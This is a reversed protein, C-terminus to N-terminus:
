IYIYFAKQDTSVKTGINNNNKYYWYTNTNILTKVHSHHEGNYFREDLRNLINGGLLNITILKYYQYNSNLTSNDDLIYKVGDYYYYTNPM